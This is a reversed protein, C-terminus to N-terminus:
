ATRIGPRGLPCASRASILARSAATRRDHFEPSTRARPCRTGHAGTAGQARLQENVTM